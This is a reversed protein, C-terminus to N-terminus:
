QHSALAALRTMPPNVTQKAHSPATRLQAPNRPDFSRIESHWPHSSTLPAPRICAPSNWCPASFRHQDVAVEITRVHPVLGTQRTLQSTQDIQNTEHLWVFWVSRVPWIFLVPPRVKEADQERHLLYGPEALLATGQM